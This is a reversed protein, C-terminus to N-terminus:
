RSPITMRAMENLINRGFGPFLDSRAACACVEKQLRHFGNM